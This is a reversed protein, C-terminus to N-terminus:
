ELKKAGAAHNLQQKEILFTMLQTAARIMPGGLVDKELVEFPGQGFYLGDAVLFSIRIEGKGPPPLREKHWPGINKVVQSGAEFLNKVLVASQSTVAEWVIIKEAHSIFRATGDEYCALVDLGEDLGVEVVIGLMEKSNVASGKANLTHYALARLRSEQGRDIAVKNVDNMTSKEDLLINWPYESSESNSNHFLFPDDAFFLNYLKNYGTNRYPM